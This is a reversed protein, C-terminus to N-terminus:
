VCDKDEVTETDISGIIKCTPSPITWLALVGILFLSIVATVTKGVVAGHAVSLSVFGSPRPM